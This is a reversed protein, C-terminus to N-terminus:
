ATATEVQRTVYWQQAVSLLSNIFWYLVLGAPFFLFLVTFMIPMMKMMRVQMPDGMVPSLLQQFYMTAGMLIPLIFFPDMASLDNIWLMFPAHRLEVSEFLVWYLALFIPMPLLMPLCGGLPNVQEKKYLAMMETSLKQRDDAYREQLRKLQPAIRKMNAMSRFSAASLPYLLAKVLVTLLIIAFGWNGVLGYFWDLVYFLPVALWWLWGYDVTLNLNPAIQELAKQDKPGAYFRAEYRGTAGPAITQLPSTFGYIYTGDARKRGYFRNTTDPNPIWASLFYHQLMAIWGGDVSTRYDGDDLDDFELREYRSDVTTLAGGLYPQPGLTFSSTGYPDSSDRKIQGFLSAQFPEATANEIEYSVGVVYTGREFTFTKTVTRGDLVATLPVQLQDGDLEYESANAQFAPRQGGGDIGDPGILGSQAIYTHGNGQDLLLFPTEEGSTLRHEPLQVRVIDGGNLDLWVQLTDTVVRLLRNRREVPAGPASAAAPEANTSAILSDDPVDSSDNAVGAAPVDTVSPIDDTSQVEPADSIAVSQTEPGYDESWALILLYGTALLGILLVIRQVEAPLM